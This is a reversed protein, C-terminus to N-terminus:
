WAELLIYTCKKKHVIITHIHKIKSVWNSRYFYIKKYEYLCEFFSPDFMIFANKIFKWRKRVKQEKKNLIQNVHADKKAFMESKKFLQTKNIKLSKVKILKTICWFNLHKPCYITNTIGNVKFSLYHWFLVLYLIWIYIKPWM